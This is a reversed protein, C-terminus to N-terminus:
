EGDIGPPDIASRLENIRSQIERLRERVVELSKDPSGQTARHTHRRVVPPVSHQTTRPAAVPVGAVQEDCGGVFVLGLITVVQMIKM